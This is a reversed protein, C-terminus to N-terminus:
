AFSSRYCAGRVYLVLFVGGSALWLSPRIAAVGHLPVVFQIAILNHLFHILMSPYLSKTKWKTWGLLMGVLFLYPLSLISFHLAAFLASAIVMARVPTLAAQLWHQLLGRFALEETIAPLVCALAILEWCSWHIDGVPYITAGAWRLFIIHYVYNLGLLPALATLGIWAAFSGFGFRRLQIALSRWYVAAVICTALAVAITGTIMRAGFDNEDFALESVIASGLVVGLYTWFVPMVSPARRAILTSDGVYPTMVGPLVTEPHKYPTACGTCFYFRSNLPLGCYTCYSLAEELPEIVADARLQALDM